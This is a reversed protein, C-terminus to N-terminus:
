KRRRLLALGGLGILSMTTPEPVATADLTVNDFLVQTDTHVGNRGLVIKLSQGPTVTAGTTVSIVMEQWATTGPDSTITASDLLTDGAYFEMLGTPWPM